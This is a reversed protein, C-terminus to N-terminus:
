EGSKRVSSPPSSFDDRRPLRKNRKACYRERFYRCKSGNVGNRLRIMSKTMRRIQASLIAAIFITAVRSTPKDERLRERFYRCKGANVENRLQIMSKTMRRIQASVVAAILTM